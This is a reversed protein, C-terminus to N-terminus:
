VQGPYANITATTNGTSISWSPSTRPPPYSNITATTNGVSIDWGETVVNLSTNKLVNSYDSLDPSESRDQAVFYITAAGESIGGAFQINLINLGSSIAVEGHDLAGTGAAIDAGATQPDSSRSDSAYLGWYLQCAKDASLSTVGQPDGTIALSGALVPADPPTPFLDPPVAEFGTESTASGATNTATVEWEISSVLLSSPATYTWPNTGSPTVSVDNNTMAITLSPTPTGTAVATVTVTRSSLESSTEVTPAVLDAAVTSQGFASANGAINNVSVTWALVTATGSSPATYTWPNSGSPSVSAGNATMVIAETPTPEGTVTATVTLERGDLSQTATVTPAVDEVPPTGGPVSAIAGQTLQLFDPGMRLWQVVSSGKGFPIYGTVGNLTLQLIDSM